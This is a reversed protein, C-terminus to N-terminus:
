KKIKLTSNILDIMNKSEQFDFSVANDVFDSIKNSTVHVEIIEAGLIASTIPAVINPCHNSYGNFENM